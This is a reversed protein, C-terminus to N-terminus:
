HYLSKPPSEASEGASDLDMGRLASLAVESLLFGHRRVTEDPDHMLRVRFQPDEAARLLLQELQYQDLREIAEAASQALENDEAMEFSRLYEAMARVPEGRHQFLMGLKFHHHPDGPELYILRGITEIARDLEGCHFQGMALLDYACPNRPNLALMQEAQAVVQDHRGLEHYLEALAARTEPSSPNLSVATELAESAERLMGRERRLGALALYARAYGPDLEVAQQFCRMAEAHHGARWYSQGLECHLQPSVRDLDLAQEMLKTGAEVQELELQCRGAAVLARALAQRHIASKLLSRPHKHVLPLLLELAAAPQGAQLIELAEGLATLWAAVADQKSQRETATQM